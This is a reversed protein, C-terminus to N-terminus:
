TEKEMGEKMKDEEGGCRESWRAVNKRTKEQLKKDTTDWIGKENIRNVHGFWRM